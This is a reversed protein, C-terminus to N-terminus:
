GTVNYQCRGLWYPAPFPGLVEEGPTVREVLQAIAGGCLYASLYLFLSLLIFLSLSAGSVNTKGIVSFCLCLNTIHM